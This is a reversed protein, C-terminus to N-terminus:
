AAERLGRSQIHATLESVSHVDLKSYIKRVHDAVTSPAVSLAASIQAQSYGRHLLACVERQAASLPLRDLARRLSVIGPEVHQIGVHVLPAAVGNVAVM